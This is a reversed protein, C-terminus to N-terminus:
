LTTNQSTIYNTHIAPYKRFNLKLVYCVQVLDFPGDSTTKRTFIRTDRSSLCTVAIYIVDRWEKVDLGYGGCNTQELNQSWEWGTGTLM